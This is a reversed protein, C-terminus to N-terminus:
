KDKKVVHEDVLTELKKCIKTLLEAIICINIIFGGVQWGLFLSLGVLIIMVLTEM